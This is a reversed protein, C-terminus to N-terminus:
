LFFNNDEVEPIESVDKGSAIFNEIWWNVHHYFCVSRTSANWAPTSPGSPTSWASRPSIM